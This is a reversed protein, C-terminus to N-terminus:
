SVVLQQCLPLRRSKKSFAAVRHVRPPKLRSQLRREGQSQCHSLDSAFQSPGSGSRSSPPLSRVRAIVQRVGASTLRDASASYEPWDHVGKSLAELIDPTKKGERHLM